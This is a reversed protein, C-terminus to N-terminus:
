QPLKSYYFEINKVIYDIYSLSIKPHSPLCILEKEYKEANLCNTGDGFMKQCNYYHKFRVEIGKDLLHKNLNNKDKVLVPFDLFNQYTQDSIKILNIKKINIASLKKFYYSNNKKRSNFIEKRRKSKKLQHDTLRLSLNSIKTYYYTPLKRKIKKLSPYFIQLIFKINKAHAYKIIYIFIIKFLIRISMLKLIFFILIQKLLPKILFSKLKKEEKKFFNFFNKDNTAVAGGYLSSINKMINFSYISYDGQAGSYSIKKNKKHFNDFYIANDEILPIKLKKAINKIKLSDNYNNFMNTLVIALTNKSINKKLHKLDIFGTQYDVDCFKMKLNLNTAINIMEPLNYACIVVEKKKSESKLFKLIFFFGVRCQSHLSVFKKKSQKSLINKISKIHKHAQKKSLLNKLFDIFSLYIWVRFM